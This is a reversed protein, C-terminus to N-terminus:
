AGAAEELVGALTYACAHDGDPIYEVRALTEGVLERVFGIEVRCPTRTVEVLEKVPCHCLRLRPRGDDDDGEVLEAMYGEENLVEVAELLRARGDLGELRERARARRTAAFSELFGDLLAEHGQDRLWTALGQLLESERRPFLREAAETLEYLREPRGRGHIRAGAPEVWGDEVLSKVHGRVTEPNLEVAAALEPVSSTGRRKLRLLLRGPTGSPLLPLM